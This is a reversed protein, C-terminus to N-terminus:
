EELLKKRLKRVARQKANDVSKESVGMKEAIQRYSMGYIHFCIITERERKSLCSDMANQLREYDHIESLESNESYLSKILKEALEDTLVFFSNQKAKSNMRNKACAYFYTAASSRSKDFASIATLVGLMGEQFLDESIHKNTERALTKVMPMLREMLAAVAASDHKAAEALEDTDMSSYISQNEFIEQEIM